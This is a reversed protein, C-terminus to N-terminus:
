KNTTPLLSTDIVSKYNFSSDLGQAKAVQNWTMELRAPDFQGLGAKRAFDTFVVANVAKLSGLCDDAKVEPNAKVHLACAEEPYENAWNVSKWAAALFRRVMDPNSKLTAENTMLAASYITFGTEVYPLMRIKEGQAEAAKNVYYYHISYFPAADLKKAILLNAMSAADINVWQITSEDVGTRKAVEPFYFKHSNGPTIGIRKGELQKFSKIGSSELVFMSHPSYSYMSSVVKVPANTKARATLAPSFDAIAFQAAGAGVKAVTDGGGYGRNITLDIAQEKFFGKAVGAYYAAFEGSPLFDLLFTAKDQASAAVPQLLCAALTSVLAIRVRSSYRINMASQM